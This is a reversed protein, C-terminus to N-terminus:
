ISTTAIGLKVCEESNLQIDDKPLSVEHYTLPLCMDIIEESLGKNVFIKSIDDNLLRVFDILGIMHGCSTSSPLEIDSFILQADHSMIRNDALLFLFSAFKTITKTVSSTFTVGPYKTKITNIMDNLKFFPRTNNNGTNGTLIYSVNYKANHDNKNYFEHASETIIKIINSANDTIIDYNIHIEIGADSKTYNVITDM